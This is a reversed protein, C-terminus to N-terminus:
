AIQEIRAKQCLPYAETFAAIAAKMEEFSRGYFYLATERSGEWYGRFDGHPMLRDCQEIVHNVDSEAYVTDDLETGNLFLGLGELKGFPVESGDKEVILRSGKPAGVAELRDAIASLTDGGADHVCIELDVFEIGAPEDAMQTGGGTVSGLGMEELTENLPDEYYEGRDLPQVRANLRAIVYEGEQAPEPKAGFKLGFM